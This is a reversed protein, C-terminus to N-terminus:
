RAISLITEYIDQNAPTTILVKPTTKIQCSSLIAQLATAIRHHVCVFICNSWKDLLENEVVNNYVSALSESSTLLFVTSQQTNELMDTLKQIENKTWVVQKRNYIALKNVHVNQSQLKNSLWERGTQGRVILAKHIKHSINDSM